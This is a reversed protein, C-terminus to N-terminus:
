KAKNNTAAAMSGNKRQDFVILSENGDFAEISINPAHTKIFVFLEKAEVEVSPWLELTVTHITQNTGPVDLSQITVGCRNELDLERIGENVVDLHDSIRLSIEKSAYCVETM